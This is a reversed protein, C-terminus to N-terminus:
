LGEVKLKVVKGRESALIIPTKQIEYAHTGDSSSMVSIWAPSLVTLPTRLYLKGGLTWAQCEGGNVKISEAGKPPIGDLVSILAVNGSAPLGDLVPNANPGLRPVRLDVRYDIATQGPMLTIMIPTDLGKLMVALNGSKYHSLSQVLLTHGKKDWQINFSKPDGIDFSAIPWSAGTSDMFVLSSVYGQSLRIIPPTAGPSMNVTVSSSTPKPPTGPEEAVARQTKDFLQHLLKIQEPKLPMMNTMTNAFAQDSNGSTHQTATGQQQGSAQQQAPMAARANKQQPMANTPKAHKQSHEKAQKQSQEKAQKLLASIMAKQDMQSKSVGFENNQQPATKTEAQASLMMISLSLAITILVSRKMVTKRGNNIKFYKSLM